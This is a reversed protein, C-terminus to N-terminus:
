IDDFDGNIMIIKETDYKPHLTLSHVYVYLMLIPVISLFIINM